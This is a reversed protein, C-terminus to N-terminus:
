LLDKYVKTIKNVLNKEVTLEFSNEGLITKVVMNELDASPVFKYKVSNQEITIIIKGIGIDCFLTDDGHYEVEAVGDCICWKLKDFLKNIYVEEVNTIASLDKRLNIEM